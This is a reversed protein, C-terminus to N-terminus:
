KEASNWEEVMQAHTRGFASVEYGCRRCSIGALSKYPRGGCRKCPAIEEYEDAHDFDYRYRKTTKM